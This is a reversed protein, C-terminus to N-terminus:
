HRSRGALRQARMFRRVDGVTSMVRRGMRFTKPGTHQQRWWRLTNPSVKLIEAVEILTLLEDEDRESFGVQDIRM